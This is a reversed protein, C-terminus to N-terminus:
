VRRVGSPSTRVCNGSFTKASQRSPSSLQSKTEGGVVVIDHEARADRKLHSDGFACADGRDDRGVPPHAIAVEILAIANRFNALGLGARRELHQTQRGLAQPEEAIGVAIQHAIAAPVERGRVLEGFDGARDAHLVGERVHQPLNARVAHKQGGAGIQMGFWRM